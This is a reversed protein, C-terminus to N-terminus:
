FLALQLTQAHSEMKALNRVAFAVQGHHRLLLSVSVAVQMAWHGKYPDQRMTGRDAPLVLYVSQM